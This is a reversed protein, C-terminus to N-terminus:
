IGWSSVLGSSAIYRDYSDRLVQPMAKNVYHMIHVKLNQGSTDVIKFLTLHKNVKKATVTAFHVGKRNYIKVPNVNRVTSKIAALVKSMVVANINNHRIM